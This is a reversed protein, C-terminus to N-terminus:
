NRIKILNAQTWKLKRAANNLSDWGSSCDELDNKSEKILFDLNEKNVEIEESKLVAIYDEEQWLIVAGYDPRNILSVEDSFNNEKIEKLTKVLEPSVQEKELVEIAKSLEVKKM